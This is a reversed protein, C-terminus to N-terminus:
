LVRFSLTQVAPTVQLKKYILAGEWQWSAFYFLAV